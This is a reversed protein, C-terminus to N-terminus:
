VTSFARALTFSSLPMLRTSFNRLSSTQGSQPPVRRESAALAGLSQPMESSSAHVMASESRTSHTASMGSVRGSSIRGIASAMASDNWVM